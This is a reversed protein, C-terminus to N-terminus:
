GTACIRCIHTQSGFIEPIESLQFSQMERRVEWSPEYSPSAFKLNYSMIKLPQGYGNESLITQGLVFHNLCVSCFLILSLLVIHKKM